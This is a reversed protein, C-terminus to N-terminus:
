HRLVLAALTAGLGATAMLYFDGPRLRGAAVAGRYSIFPDAGFCHGLERQNDLYLRDRPLGLRLLVRLWSMKNVNHPLVLALDAPTLGAGALAARIVEALADPYRNQFEAELEEPLEPAEHFEGLTRTAYALVRDRDGGSGILVAAVGEGMVAAHPLVQAVGTFTKEGTFMLALADPDGDGALLKGCAEIALLASACAHQALSFPLARHLGLADRATWLPNHPYPAALQITPAYVVYRVQSERGRLLDLGAGAATLQEALNGGTDRRIGGFGYYRTYIGADEAVGTGAFYDALSLRRDPLYCAVELLSTM